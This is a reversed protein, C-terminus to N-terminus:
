DLEQGSNSVLKIPTELNEDTTKNVIQTFNQDYFSDGSNAADGHNVEFNQKDDVVKKSRLKQISGGFFKDGIMVYKFKLM